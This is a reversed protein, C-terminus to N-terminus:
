DFIVEEFLDHPLGDQYQRIKKLTELAHCGHWTYHRGDALYFRCSKTQEISSWVEYLHRKKFAYPESTFFLHWGDQIAGWDVEPYRPKASQNKYGALKLVSSIYTDTGAVFYPERWIFYLAPKLEAPEEMGSLTQAWSQAFVKAEATTGLQDTILNIEAMSDLIETPEGLVIQTNPLLERLQDIAEKTNEEYNAFIVAPNLSAVKGIDPDKTGGIVACSRHLDAPEICYSTIGVIKKRFGLKVLSKTTSPVLSVVRGTM